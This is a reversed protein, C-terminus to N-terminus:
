KLNNIQKKLSPKVIIGRDKRYKAVVEKWAQETDADSETEPILFIGKLVSVVKTTDISSLPADSKFAELLLDVAGPNAILNQLAESQAMRYRNLGLEGIIYKTGIVGRYWAFVRSMMGPVTYPGPKGTFGIDDTGRAVVTTLEHLKRLNNVHKKGYIYLVVVSVGDKFDENNNVQINNFKKLKKLLSDEIQTKILNNDAIIKLHFNYKDDSFSYSTIFSFFVIYLISIFIKM